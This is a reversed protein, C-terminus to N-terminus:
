KVSTIVHDKGQEIFDFEVKKGPALSELLKKDKAKFTMTMAPWNISKVAEHDVTVTGKAADVSKVVGVAHHSKGKQAKSKKSMDKIDMDKMDMGKMGGSQGFALSAVALLVTFLVRRKM